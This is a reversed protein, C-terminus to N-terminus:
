GAADPLDAEAPMRELAALLVTTTREIHPRLAAVARDADRALAAELM